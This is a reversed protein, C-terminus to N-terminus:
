PANAKKPRMSPNKEWCNHAGHGMKNCHSCPPRGGTAAFAEAAAALGGPAGFASLAPQPQGYGQQYYGPQAYYGPVLIFSPAATLPLPAAASASGSASKDPRLRPHLTWCEDKSHHHKPHKPCPSHSRSRARKSGRRDGDKDREPMKIDELLGKALESPFKSNILSKLDSSVQRWDEEKDYQRTADVFLELLTTLHEPSSAAARQLAKYRGAERQNRMNKWKFSSWKRQEERVTHNKSETLNQQSISVLQSMSGGLRDMFATMAVEFAPRAVAVVAVEGQPPQQQAPQQQQQEAM